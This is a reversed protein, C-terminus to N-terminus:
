RTSTRPWRGTAPMEKERLPAFGEQLRGIERTRCAMRRWTRAFETQDPNNVRIKEFETGELGVRCELGITTAVGAIAGAEIFEYAGAITDHDMIGATQLGAARAYYVAATPSYPSFSYFTHIHNNAYQPLVAPPAKEADIVARLAALRGAATESNLLDLERM